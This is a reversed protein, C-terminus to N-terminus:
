RRVWWLKPNDVLKLDDNTEWGAKVMDPENCLPLWSYAGGGCGGMLEDIAYISWKIYHAKGTGYKTYSGEYTFNRVGIAGEYFEVNDVLRLNSDLSLYFHLMGKFIGNDQGLSDERFVFSASCEINREDFQHRKFEAFDKYSSFECTDKSFWYDRDYMKATDVRIYGNFSRVVKRVRTAGAVYYMRKEATDRKVSSIFVQLRQKTSDLIGFDGVSDDADLKGKFFDALDYRKCLEKTVITFPAPVEVHFPSNPFPDCRADVQPAMKQKCGISTSLILLFVQLLFLRSKFNM